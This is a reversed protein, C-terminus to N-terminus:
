TFWEALRESPDSSAYLTVEAPKFDYSASLPTGINTIKETLEQATLDRSDGLASLVRVFLTTVVPAAYSTGTHPRLQGDHVAPYM